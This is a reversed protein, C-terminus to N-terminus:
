VNPKERVPEPVPLQVYQNIHADTKGVKGALADQTLGGAEMAWIYSLGRDIPSTDEREDNESIM